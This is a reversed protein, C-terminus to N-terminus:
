GQQGSGDVLSGGGALSARGLSPEREWLRGGGNVVYSKAVLIVSIGERGGQGGDGVGSGVGGGGSRQTDGREAEKWLEARRGESGTM